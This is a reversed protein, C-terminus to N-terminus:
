RTDPREQRVIFVYDSVDIALKFRVKDSLVSTIKPTPSMVGMM